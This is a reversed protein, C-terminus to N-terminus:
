LAGEGPVEPLEVDPAFNERLVAIMQRVEESNPFGFVLANELVYAYENLQEIERAALTACPYGGMGLRRLQDMHDHTFPHKGAM